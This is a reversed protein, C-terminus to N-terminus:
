AAAETDGEGTKPSLTRFVETLAEDGGVNGPFIVLPLNPYRPHDDPCQVVSCGARIQGLVRATRLVLGQSLVDNSTIGGKSILFGLDAPLAQVLSVLFASVQEGFALREAQGAFRREGRSTYIVSSRGAAFAQDVAELIENRHRFGDREIRDVQVELPVVETEQRLHALQRSTKDVHSGVVIVGPKGGRVYASMREAAIPQPPLRALSTLLSAASRFLFRRGEGAVALLQECFGDLDSQQEADVAVCVNGSLGRLREHLDGRIRDLTLREVQEAGIRGATKEAVYDPLYATSFGFVSDRAFETEHVPVPEGDVLLYHTSDRTVRGGEFFAPVLFHADFPGLEEAIVDTEVPYHGRLTSDSRSVLLPNIRRGEGALEELALKLNRCVERTIDAAQAADMGRTNSLVFFLPAPDLLAERLTAPDWRTLLLCSHVTQSGTPDDDIVVIKTEFESSTVVAVGRGSRGPGRRHHRQVGHDRGPQRHDRRAELRVRGTGARPQAADGARAGGDRRRQGRDTCRRRVPRRLRGSGHLPRGAAAVTDWAVDGPRYLRRPNAVCVIRVRYGDAELRDKAAFVPLYVMDGTVAFVITGKEGASSEYIAVAGQDIAQEAQARSTYVPLASKSAIISISKNFSGLAWDYAAQIMNADCPFLPYSNGNRMQAGFYNEIEPRQHTWGNRGQELAGATFMSVLSPTKRRLEAMAQAVTQVIPWGNIAFSEYSLWLSRGGFLALGAALGACADENLPEYVQGNPAQNYLADATPHRIKLAENIAKMNSAENGDANSIVFSPDAKGVAVVMQAMASSPVAKEGVPFETRPLEGLDVLARESETVVCRGAPGGGARSINGRVLQWAEPSLARAKLATAINDKEISDGPYLNHSKAGHAHVGAGKLQKIILATLTGGLAQDAAKQAAELVARTFAMRQGFSFRTSDVYEGDQGADDFDKADILIVDDFGHAQWYATMRENDFLSVMSHHEQSFGNWVLVPLFNTVQPYATRFHLMSNLVYPEGMGGDGITCPFLTDRNLLAGAMAFHQGQGLPGAPALLGPIAGSLHGLLGHRERFRAQLDEMDHIGMAELSRDLFMASYYGPAHHGVETVVNIHGLMVLAAYADASSAFGGPHGSEKSACLQLTTYRLADAALMTQYVAADDIREIASRDEGIVPHVGLEAFHESADAFHRIGRLFATADTNLHKAATSM